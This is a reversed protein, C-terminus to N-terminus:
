TRGFATLLHLGPIIRESHKPSRKSYKARNHSSYTGEIQRRSDEKRLEGNGLCLEDDVVVSVISKRSVKKKAARAMTVAEGVGVMPCREQWVISGVKQCRRLGEFELEILGTFRKNESPLEEDPTIVRL